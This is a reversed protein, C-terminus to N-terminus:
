KGWKFSLPIGIEDIDLTIPKLLGLLDLFERFKEIGILQGM